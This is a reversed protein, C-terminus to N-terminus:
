AVSAKPLPNLVFTGASLMGTFLTAIVLQQGPSATSFWCIPLLSWLCALASAQLTARRVARLSATHLPKGRCQAWRHVAAVAVAVLALFWLYLGPRHQSRIESSRSRHNRCRSRPNRDMTVSRTKPEDHGATEAIHGIM